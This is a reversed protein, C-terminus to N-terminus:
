GSRWAWPTTSPRGPRPPPASWRRIELGKILAAFKGLKGEVRESVYAQSSPDPAIGYSKIPLAGAKALGPKPESKEM